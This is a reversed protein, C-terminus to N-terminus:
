VFYHLVPSNSSLVNSVFLSSHLFCVTNANVSYSYFVALFSDLAWWLTRWLQLFHSSMLAVESIKWSRSKVNSKRRKSLSYLLLFFTLIYTYRLIHDMTYNYFYQLQSHDRYVQGTLWLVSFSWFMLFM